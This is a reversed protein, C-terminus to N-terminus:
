DNYEQIESVYVELVKSFVEPVLVLNKLVAPIMITNGKSIKESKKGNYDIYFSGEVCMYVVFSDLLNYDKTVPHEFTILNTRFYQCEVLNCTRDPLTEYLSRTEPVSKFDIVDLAQDTHLERPEGKDDLRGWDYIRYTVDSSQQIEALLIGAGIGHVRGNPIFYVEGQAVYDYHLIDEVNGSSLASIYSQKDMTEKFGNILSAGTEALVIYWMETKGLSDHRELAIEDGPHVQISLTESADIFKFLLPFEHGFKEFVSDGVLDGMYVEIIESLSNGKLFGNEVISMDTAMGSIEWSEGIKTNLKGPKGLYEVLKKGGWIKEKLIPKFKLPYLVDEM